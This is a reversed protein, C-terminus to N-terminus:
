QSPLGAPYECSWSPSFLGGGLDTYIGGAAVCREAHTPGDSAGVAFVFLAYMALFSVILAVWALSWAADAVTVGTFPRTSDSRWHDLSIMEEPSDRQIDRLVQVVLRGSRTWPKWFVIQEPLVGRGGIMSRIRPLGAWPDQPAGGDSEGAASWAERLIRDRRIKSRHSRRLSRISPVLYIPNRCFSLDDVYSRVLDYDSVTELDTATLTTM